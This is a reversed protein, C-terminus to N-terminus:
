GRMIFVECKPLKTKLEKVAKEGGKFQKGMLKVEKLNPLNALPTLDYGDVGTSGLMLSELAPM